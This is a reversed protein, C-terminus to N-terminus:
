QRSKQVMSKMLTLLSQRTEKDLSHYLKLLEADEEAMEVIRELRKGHEPPLDEWGMLYAASVDLADAMIKVKNIPLDRALEIKNISSRSKYGIRKALEEQTLELEIRRQKIKEGVTM